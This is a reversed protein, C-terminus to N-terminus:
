TLSDGAGRMMGVGVEEGSRPPGMAQTPPGTAQTPPGGAASAPTSPYYTTSLLYSIYDFFANTSWDNFTLPEHSM